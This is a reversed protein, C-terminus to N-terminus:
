THFSNGNQRNFSCFFNCFPKSVGNIRQSNLLKPNKEKRKKKELHAQVSYFPQLSDEIASPPHMM